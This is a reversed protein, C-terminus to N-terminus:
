YPKAPCDLAVRNGLLFFLLFFPILSWEEEKPIAYREITGCVRVLPAGAPPHGEKRTAALVARMPMIRGRLVPGSGIM